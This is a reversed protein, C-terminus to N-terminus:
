KARHVKPPASRARGQNKEFGYGFTTESLAWAERFVNM